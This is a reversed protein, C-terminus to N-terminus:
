RNYEAVQSKGAIAIWQYGLMTPWWNTLRALTSYLEWGLGSKTFSPWILDLAVPTVKLEEIKLGSNKLLNLFSKRTYFHLHTRDLIGRDAYDFRGLLL